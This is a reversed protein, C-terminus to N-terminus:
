TWTPGGYSHSATQVLAAQVGRESRAKELFRDIPNSPNGPVTPIAARVPKRFAWYQRAEETIPSDEIAALRTDTVTPKSQAADWVAGQDIWDRILSIQEATLKGDLPMAPKEMGAVVRYLRSEGAKGPVVATGRQGGRLASERSRLDLRSLQVAGGHCKWCSGDFIPQIDRNFSVPQDAALLSAVGTMGWLLGLNTGLSRM